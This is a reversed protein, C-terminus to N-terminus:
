WLNTFYYNGVQSIIGGEQFGYLESIKTKLVASSIRTNKDAVLMESIIECEPRFKAEVKVIIEEYHEMDFTGYQKSVVTYLVELFVVGLSYVDSKKSCGVDPSTYKLCGKKSIVSEDQGGVENNLLRALGFDGIKWLNQSIFINDLKLDRHVINKNHIVDLAESIQVLLAPIGLNVAGNDVVMKLTAECLEMQIFFFDSQLGTSSMDKSLKLTRDKIETKNPGELWSTHYRVINPHNIAQLVRVEEFLSSLNYHPLVKGICIQKLAYHCKDTKNMVKWVKGFSGKGIAPPIVEFDGYTKSKGATTTM